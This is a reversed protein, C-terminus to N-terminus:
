AALHVEDRAEAALSLGAGPIEGEAFLAPDIDELSRNADLYARPFHARLLPAGLTRVHGFLEDVHTDESLRIRRSDVAPQIM